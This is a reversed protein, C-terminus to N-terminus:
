LTDFAVLLLTDRSSVKKVLNRHQSQQAVVTLEYKSFSVDASIPLYEM